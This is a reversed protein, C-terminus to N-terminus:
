ENADFVLHRALFPLVRGYFRGNGTWNRNRPNDRYEEAEHKIGLNELKRSFAQNAYVHDQIPDFRGWDFALGRLSCLNAVSEDLTEELHLGKKAKAVKEPNLTPKGNEVNM